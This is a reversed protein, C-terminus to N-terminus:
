RGFKFSPTIKFFVDIYNCGFAHPVNNENTLFLFGHTNIEGRYTKGKIFDYTEDYPSEKDVLCKARIQKM